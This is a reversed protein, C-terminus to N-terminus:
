SAASGQYAYGPLSRYDVSVARMGTIGCMMVAELPAADGTNILFGGSHFHLLMRGKGAPSEVEPILRYVHVGGMHGEECRVRMRRCLAPLLASNRSSLEGAWAKWEAESSLHTNWWAYPKRRMLAAMQPSVSGPVPFERIEVGSKEQEKM